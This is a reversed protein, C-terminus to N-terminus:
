RRASRGARSVWNLLAGGLVIAEILIGTDYSAEAALPLSIGLYAVATLGDFHREIAISRTGSVPFDPPKALFEALFPEGQRGPTIMNLGYGVLLARAVMQYPNPGILGPIIQWRWARRSLKIIYVLIVVVIPILVLM